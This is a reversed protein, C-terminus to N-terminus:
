ISIVEETLSHWSEVTSQELVGVVEGLAQIFEGGKTQELISQLFTLSQRALQSIEALEEGKCQMALGAETHVILSVLTSTLEPLPAIEQLESKRTDIDHLFTRLLRLTESLSPADFHPTSSLLCTFIRPLSSQLRNLGSGPAQAEIAGTLLSRLVKVVGAKPSDAEALLDGQFCNTVACSCSHM